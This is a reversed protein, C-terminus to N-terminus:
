LRELVNVVQYFDTFPVCELHAQQCSSLLNSTAFIYHCRRAPAFDSTGNGMYIIRYGEGLFSNTHAEKFDSDLQNGDPGIYQVRIGGPSFETRAALVEIDGLGIDTLITEIYFDLGNSVIVLRFGKRRCCTVMEQFGPRIKVKSRTTEVLSQRSAKVMAFAEANFRGVTIRGQEYESLKRRWDGDAFADLLM